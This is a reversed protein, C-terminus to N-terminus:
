KELTGSSVMLMEMFVRALILKERNKIANVIDKGLFEFVLLTVFTKLTTAGSRKTAGFDGM